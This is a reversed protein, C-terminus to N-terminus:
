RSYFLNGPEMSDYQNRARVFTSTSDGFIWRDEPGGGVLKLVNLPYLLLPKCALFGDV